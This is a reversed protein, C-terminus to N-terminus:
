RRAPLAPAEGRGPWWRVSLSADLATVAAHNVDPTDPVVGFNLNYRHSIGMEWQLDWERFAWAGRTGYTM